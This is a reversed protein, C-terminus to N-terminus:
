PLRTGPAPSSFRHLVAPLDPIRRELAAVDALDVHGAGPQLVAAAGLLAAWRLGVALPADHVWSAAIGATAADGAGTPNGAIGPVAPQTTEEGDVDVGLLGDAGRSVVVRRAGDRRLRDLAAALDGQGTAALAEEANPKVLDAGARAAATLSPGSVDVLVRAGADQGAAVLDAVLDPRTGVPSSGAVVLVGGPRCVGRVRDLLRAWVEEPVVPGPEAFVTPHGVGDVVTVTSRTEGPVEVAEARVGEAQLQEAIWRGAAGGLPHVALVDVSLTRLVRAVNLGKGGARRLVEGVRVTEGARLRDVRYTVDVAPNPTVVVVHPVATNM